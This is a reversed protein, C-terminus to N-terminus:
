AVGLPINVERNQRSREFETGLTLVITDTVIPTNDLQIVLTIALSLSSIRCTSRRILYMVFAKLVIRFKIGIITMIFSTLAFLPSLVDVAIEYSYCPDSTSAQVPHQTTPEPQVVPIPLIRANERCAEPTVQCISRALNFSPLSLLFLTLFPLRM